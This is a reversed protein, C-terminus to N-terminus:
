PIGHEDDQDDPEEVRPRRRLEVFQRERIEPSGLRHQGQDSSVNNLLRAEARLADPTIREFTAAYQNWLTNYHPGPLGIIARFRAAFLDSYSVILQLERPKVTIITEAEECARLRDILDGDTKVPFGLDDPIKAGDPVILVQYRPVTQEPFAM